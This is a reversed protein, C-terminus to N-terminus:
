GKRRRASAERLHAWVNQPPCDADIWELIEALRWKKIHGIQVAAPLAEQALLRYFTSNAVSLLRAFTKPDILLGTDEPIKGMLVAMRVDSAKLKDAPTLVTGETSLPIGSQPAPPKGPSPQVRSLAKTLMPEFSDRFAKLLRNMSAPDISLQLPVQREAKAPPQTPVTALTSDNM